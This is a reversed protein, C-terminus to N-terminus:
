PNKESVHPLQARPSAPSAKPLLLCLGLTGPRQPASTIIVFGSLPVKWLEQFIQNFNGRKEGM